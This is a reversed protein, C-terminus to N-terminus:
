SIAILLFVIGVMAIVFALTRAIPIGAAYLPVYVLRAWFYMHAGGITLWNHRGFIHALLIAAAFFPFTQLYNAFARQVRAGVGSLPKPEDRPSLGYHLGHQLTTFQGTAVAHVLGLVIAWGLLALEATM